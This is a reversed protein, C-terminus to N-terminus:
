KTREGASLARWQDRADDAARAIMWDFATLKPLTCAGEKCTLEHVMNIYCLPCRPWTRGEHAAGYGTVPDEAGGTLLYLPNGGAQEVLRSANNAIAWHAAMLPDFNAPTTGTELESASREVAEAGGRAVLGDLGRDAIAERLKNWHGQCFRM